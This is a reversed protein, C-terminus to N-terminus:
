WPPAVGLLQSLKAAVVEDMTGALANLASRYQRYSRKTAGIRGGLSLEQLKTENGHGIANRFDVLLDLKQLRTQTAADVAKLAEVFKFGIKAFDNGLHDTRPTQTDLKRGQTMLTRLFDAQRPNACTVHVEVAEDHLDRCYNQFQAVLAVLLSRNLQETGWRRGRGTGTAEAHVKELEDLRAM